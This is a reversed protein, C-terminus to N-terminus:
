GDVRNSKVTVMSPNFYFCRFTRVSVRVALNATTVIGTEGAARSDEEDAGTVAVDEDAEEDVAVDEHSTM